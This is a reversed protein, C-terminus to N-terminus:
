SLDAKELWKALLPRSHAEQSALLSKCYAELVPVVKGADALGDLVMDATSFADAMVMDASGNAKILTHVEYARCNMNPRDAGFRQRLKNGGRELARLCLAESVHLLAAADREPIDRVPHDELSPDPRSERPAVSPLELPGLDVGLKKLAANVQEPTASGGAIKKTLWFRLDEDRPADKEDFGNERRMAAGSLEGLNFLEMSEKSRDPRLRLPSTNYRIATADGTYPRLYAGTLSNVVVDLMPEVHMKIAEEDIQWAGWHSVGNSNGGGTGPNASMGLVKEPPLNIGLAFRFIADRRMERTADDMPSWFHVLGDKLSKIYEGPVMSVIPVHESPSGDGKLSEMMSNGLMQMFQVAENATAQPKGEVEPPPPFPIEQPLFFIGAGVLRPPTQASINKTLYEIESLVPLLARFPSTAEMRKAPNPVWLRIVVADDDLEVDAFGDGYSISWRDGAKRMETIPVIEWIDEGEAAEKRDSYIDGKAERGVLYCEGAVTFHTGIASLMAEQGESGDFLQQMAQEPKSGPKVAEWGGDVRDAAFLQARSMAHGFYDAAFAAEGCIAYHRYCATQWPQAPVYIGAAKGPYRVASAILANSPIIADQTTPKRRGAM